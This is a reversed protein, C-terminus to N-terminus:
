VYIIHKRRLFRIVARQWHVTVGFRGGRGEDEQDIIGPRELDAVIAECEDLSFRLVAAAEGASLRGHLVLAALLFRAQDGLRELKEEDPTEFLRVRMPGDGSAVLSRLWFHVACRPVGDSYDWLLRLYRQGTRAIEEKMESEEVHRSVVLDEYTSALGAAAMRREILSEIEQESWPKLLVVESFLGRGRNLSELHEWTYLPFSCVWLTTGTTRAVIGALTEYAESGGIVRLFLNECGDVLVIRRPGRGLAEIIDDDTRAAAAGLEGGVFRCLEEVGAVRRRANVRVVGPGDAGGAAVRAELEGLWATRGIGPEGVLAYSPVRGGSRWKEAADLVEDMRGWREVALPASVPGETFADILKGPFSSVDATGYGVSRAHKEMKRRFVFALTRRTWDFRLMLDRVYLWSGKVAVFGFAVAAIFFGLPRGRTREVAARFRGAPHHRLYSAAISDRWSQLLVVLLPLVGIWLLRVLMTTISGRGFIEEAVDLLVVAAFVFRGAYRMSRMIRKGLEQTVKVERTAAAGTAFRYGVALILRYWAYGLAVYRAMNVEAADVMGIFAFVLYLSVLLAAEPAIAGAFVLVRDASAWAGRGQSKEALFDRLKRVWTRYRKRAYLLAIALLLLKLIAMGVLGLTVPDHLSARANRWQHLRAAPYLRAMVRLYAAERALQELGKRGLGLLASRRDDSVRELLFFIEDRQIGLEGALKSAYSWRVEREEELALDHERRSAELSELLADRQQTMGAYPEKAHDLAPEFSPVRSPKEIEAVAESLRGLSTSFVPLLRDLVGDAEEPGLDPAKLRPGIEKRLALIKALAAAQKQRETALIVRIAAVGARYGEVRAKEEAIERASETAAKGAEALAALRATEAKRVAEEAALRAKEAAEKEAALQRSKVDAEHLAILKERPQELLELRLRAQDLELKALRYRQGDEPSLLELIAEEDPAATEEEAVDGAAPGAEPLKKDAAAKVWIGVREELSAIKGRLEAIRAAVAKEDLFDVELLDDTYMGDPPKGEVARGLAEIARELEEIRGPEPLPEPVPEPEIVGAEQPLPPPSESGAEVIDAPGADTRADVPPAGPSERAIAGSSAPLATALLAALLLKMNKKAHM